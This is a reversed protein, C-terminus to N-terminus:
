SHRTMTSTSSVMKKLNVGGIHIETFISKEDISSFILNIKNRTCLSKVILGRSSYYDHAELVVKCIITLM